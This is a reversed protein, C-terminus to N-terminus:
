PSRVYNSLKCKAEIREIRALVKERNYGFDYDNTCPNDMLFMERFKRLGDFAGSEVHRILNDSLYIEELNPNNEFLDSEIVRIQNYTLYLKRLKDGFEKLDDKKIEQLNSHQIDICDINKFFKALGRPFYKIMAEATFCKVDDHTKQDSHQGKVETIERDDKSLVLERNKAKCSYGYFPLSEFQCELILSQVEGCFIILIVVSSLNKM